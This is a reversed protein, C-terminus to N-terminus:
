VSIRNITEFQTHLERISNRCVTILKRKTIRLGFDYEGDGNNEEGEIGKAGNKLCLELDEDSRVNILIVTPEIHLKLTDVLDVGAMRVDEMLFLKEERAVYYACGVTGRKLEIAMVVENMEDADERSQIQGESEPAYPDSESEDDGRVTASDDSSSLRITNSSNQATSASSTPARMSIRKGTGSSLASQPLNGSSQGTASNQSSGGRSRSSALSRSSRSASQRSAGSSPTQFTPSSNPSNSSAKCRSPLSYAGRGRGRSSGRNNYHRRRWDM